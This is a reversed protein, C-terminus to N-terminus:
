HPLQGKVKSNRMDLDSTTIKKQSKHIKEFCIHPSTFTDYRWFVIKRLQTATKSNCFLIDENSTPKNPAYRVILYFSWYM